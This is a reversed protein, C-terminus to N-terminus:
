HVEYIPQISRGFAEHMAGKMQQQPTGLFSGYQHRVGEGQPAPQAVTLGAPYHLGRLALPADSQVEQQFTRSVIRGKEYLEPYLFELDNDVKTVNFTDQAFSNEWRLMESFPVFKVVLGVKFIAAVKALTELTINAEGPTEMMSIRSQYLGLEKAEKALDAQRPMDSKLRLARIQSPVLVSLKAKIYSLRSRKDRRLKYIQNSRENM